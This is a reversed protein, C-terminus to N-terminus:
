HSKKEEESMKALAKAIQKKKREAASMATKTKKLRWQQHLFICFNHM